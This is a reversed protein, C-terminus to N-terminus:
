APVHTAKGPLPAALPAPGLAALTPPGFDHRALFGNLDTPALASLAARVEAPTRVRGLVAFDRALTAARGRATESGFVASALLGSRARAFEDDSVGERLRAMEALLVDLTEAARAPTSGAYLSAFGTRALTLPSAGVSYALGREERVAEFLRSAAGGSLVGLALLFLPWDPSTPGVGAYVLGLHTQASDDPVHRTEGARFVPEPLDAGGGTWDGFGAEALALVEAAPRSSVVSLVAGRSGYRGHFARVADATLADLSEPTGSPLHAYPPAFAARRLEQGLRDAPSDALGEVDQRALDAVAEFEGDDLVPRRLVDAALALAAALDAALGEVGFRTTEHSVGGGRRLGLDDFAEALGRADRGGAGRSLWEELLAAAGEGGAPDHAAGLPLRLELAFGPGAREECLLTLGNPFPHVLTM